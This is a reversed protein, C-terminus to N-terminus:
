GGGGSRRAAGEYATPAKARLEAVVRKASPILPEGSETVARHLEEFTLGSEETMRRMGESKAIVELALQVLRGNRTCEEASAKLYRLVDEATQLHKGPEWRTYKEPM